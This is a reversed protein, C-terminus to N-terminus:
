EELMSKFGMAMQLTNFDENDEDDDDDFITNQSVKKVSEERSLSEENVNNSQQRVQSTDQGSNVPTQNLANTVVNTSLNAGAGLLLTIASLLDNGTIACPISSNSASVKIDSVDDGDVYLKVITRLKDYSTEDTLNHSAFFDNILRVIFKSQYYRIKELREFAIREQEDNMNFQLSKRQMTEKMYM